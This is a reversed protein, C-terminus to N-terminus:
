WLTFSDIFAKAHARGLVFEQRNIYVQKTNFHTIKQRNLIYSKHTQVFDNVTILKSLNKFTKRVLYKKDTQHVEIYNGAARFYLINKYFLKHYLGDIKLFLHDKDTNPLFTVTEEKKNEFALAISTYLDSNSYPKVVYGQPATKIAETVTKSDAHSTVYIFPIKFKQNVIEALDIGNIGGKITIDLLILDVKQTNLIEIAKDARVAVAVVNYGLEEVTTKIDEAILLEDEVILINKM